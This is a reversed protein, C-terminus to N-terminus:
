QLENARVTIVSNRQPTPGPLLVLAAGDDLPFLQARCPQDPTCEKQLTISSVEGVEDRTLTRHQLEISSATPVIQILEARGAGTSVTLRGVELMSLETGKPAFLSEDREVSWSSGDWHRGRSWVDDVARAALTDGTWGAPGGVPHQTLTTGSLQTLVRGPTFLEVWGDDGAFGSPWMAYLDNPLTVSVDTLTTGERRYLRAQRQALAAVIGRDGRARAIATIKSRDTVDPFVSSADIEQATGDSSLVAGTLTSGFNGFVLLKNPGATSVGSGTLDLRALDMPVNVPKLANVPGHLVIMTAAPGGAAILWVDDPSTGLMRIRTGSAEPLEPLEIRASTPGCALLVLTSVALLRTM